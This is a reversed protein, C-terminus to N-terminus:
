ATVTERGLTVRALLSENVAVGLGPGKPVDITGDGNIRFEPDIIDREWYRESASIDSPYVFNPLTALAVNVARGIGTELMGGCGGGM